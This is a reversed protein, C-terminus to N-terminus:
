IEELLDKVKKLSFRTQYEEKEQELDGIVKGLALLAELELQKSALDRLHTCQVERDHILGLIDQIKKLKKLASKGKPNLLVYIEYLYRLKKCEIRVKHLDVQPDLFLMKEIKRKRKKIASKIVQLADKDSKCEIKQMKSLYSPIQQLFPTLEEYEKDRTKHLIDLIQDLHPKMASPLPHKQLLDIMVDLDRAKNTRQTIEKLRNQVNQVDNQDFSKKLTKIISRSRRTYVRLQHLHERNHPEQLVLKGFREIADTYRLLIDKIFICFKM